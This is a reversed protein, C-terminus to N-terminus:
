GNTYATKLPEKSIKKQKVLLKKKEMQIEGTNKISPFAKRSVQEQLKGSFTM